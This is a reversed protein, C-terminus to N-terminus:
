RGLGRGEVYVVTEIFGNIIMFFPIGDWGDM